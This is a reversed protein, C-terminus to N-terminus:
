LDQSCQRHLLFFTDFGVIQWPIFVEVTNDDSRVRIKTLQHSEPFTGIVNKEM